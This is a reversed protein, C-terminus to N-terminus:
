GIVAARCCLELVATSVEVPAGARRTTLSIQGARLRADLRWLPLLCSLSGLFWFLAEHLLQELHEAATLARLLCKVVM